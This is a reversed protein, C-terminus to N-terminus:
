RDSCASEVASILVAPSVPKRLSERIKTGLRRELDDPDFYEFASYVIVEPPPVDISSLLELGNMKPMHLDLVLVDVSGGRLVQLAAEGDSAELVHHRDTTLLEALTSRLPEDDEAILIYCGEVATAQNSM